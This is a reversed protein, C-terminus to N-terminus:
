PEKLFEQYEKFVNEAKKWTAEWIADSANCDDMIWDPIVNTLEKFLKEANDGVWEDKMNQYEERDDGDWDNVRPEM